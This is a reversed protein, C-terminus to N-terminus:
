GLDHYCIGDQLCCLYVTKCTDQIFGQGETTSQIDNHIMLPVTTYFPAATTYTITTTAVATISSAKLIRDSWQISRWLSEIGFFKMTQKWKRHKAHLQMGGRLNLSYNFALSLFLVDKGSSGLILLVPSIKGLLKIQSYNVPHCIISCYHQSILAIKKVPYTQKEGEGLGANTLVSLM